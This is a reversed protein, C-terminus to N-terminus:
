EDYQGDLWEEFECVVTDVDQSDDWDDGYKKRAWGDLRAEFQRYDKEARRDEDAKRHCPRCLVVVDSLSERGLTDYHRHHVELDHSGFPKGCRECRGGARALASERIRRWAPSALHETYERSHMKM